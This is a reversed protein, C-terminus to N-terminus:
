TDPGEEGPSEQVSLNTCTMYRDNYNIQIDWGRQDRPSRELSLVFQEQAFSWPLTTKYKDSEFLGKWIIACFHCGNERSAKLSDRDDHHFAFLRETVSWYHPPPGKEGRGVLPKFHINSCKVCPMRTQCSSPDRSPTFM